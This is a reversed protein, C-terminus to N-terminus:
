NEKKILKQSVYLTSGLALASLGIFTSIGDFTSPNESAVADNKVEKFTVTITVDKDPMVFKNDVVQVNEDDVVIKDLEYGADATINLTIETGMLATAPVDVKGHETVITIKHTHNTEAEEKATEYIEQSWVETGTKGEDSDDKLSIKGLDIILHIAQAHSNGDEDDWSLTFNKTLVNKLEDVAKEIDELSFGFYEIVETGDSIAEPDGTVKVNKFQKGSELTFKLGVWTNGEPRTPVSGDLLHWEGADITVTVDATKQGSIKVETGAPLSDTATINTVDPYEEETASVSVVLGFSCLVLTLIGLLKKM